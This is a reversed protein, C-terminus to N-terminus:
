IDWTTRAMKAVHVPQAEEDVCLFVGGSSGVAQEAGQWNRANGPMAGGSGGNHGGDGISSDGVVDEVGKDDDGDVDVDDGGGVFAVERENKEAPEVTPAPAAAVAASRGAFYGKARKGLDSRPQKPRGWKAACLSLVEASPLYAPSTEKMVAECSSQQNALGPPHSLLEAPPVTDEGTDMAQDASVKAVFVASLPYLEQAIEELTALTRPAAFSRIQYFLEFVVHLWRTADSRLAKRRVERQPQVSTASSADDEAADARLLQLVITGLASVSSALAHLVVATAHKLAAFSFALVDLVVEM